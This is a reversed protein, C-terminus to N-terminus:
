LKSITALRCMSVSKLYYGVHLYFCNLFVLWGICVLLKSISVLMCEREIERAREKERQNQSHIKLFSYLVLFCM